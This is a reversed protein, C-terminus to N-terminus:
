LVCRWVDGSRSTLTDRSHRAGIWGFVVHRFIHMCHTRKRAYIRTRAHTCWAHLFITAGRDFNSSDPMFNYALGSRVSTM